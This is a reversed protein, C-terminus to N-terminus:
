DTIGDSWQLRQWRRSKTGKIKGLMLTKEFSNPPWLVPAEAKADNRGFFVWPQDGEPHVPKIERCDWPSELTKELVVTWFCWNKSVTKKVTWIECGYLLVPFIMAEVLHVKTPLTIDGSKLISDPKTMVKRGLLLCRKIELSCDGDATIKSDLFIFDRM